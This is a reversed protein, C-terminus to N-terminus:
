RRPRHSPGVALAIEEPRPERGMMMRLCIAAYWRLAEESCASLDKEHAIVAALTYGLAQIADEPEAVRKKRFPWM